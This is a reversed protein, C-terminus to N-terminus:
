ARTRDPSVTNVKANIRLFIALIRILPEVLMELHLGCRSLVLLIRPRSYPYCMRATASFEKRFVSKLTLVRTQVSTEGPNDGSLYLARAQSDDQFAVGGM